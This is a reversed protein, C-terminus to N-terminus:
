IQWELLTLTPTPLFYPLLPHVESQERPKTPSTNGPCPSPSLQIHCGVLDRIGNDPLGKPFDIDDEEQFSASRQGPFGKGGVVDAKKAVRPGKCLDRPIEELDRGSGHNKKMSFVKCNRESLFSVWCQSYGHGTGVRIESLEQTGKQHYSSVINSMPKGGRFGAGGRIAGTELTGEEMLGRDWTREPPRPLISPTGPVKRPSGLFSM